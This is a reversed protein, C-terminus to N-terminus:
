NFTTATGSSGAPGSTGQPAGSGGPGVVITYTGSTLTTSGQIMGGAGGGGGMDNGGGGGGGVMLYEINGSGSVTLSGNGTFTHIRYGGSTITSNGGVISLALKGPNVWASGNYFEPIKLDSNYIMLGQELSLANRQATTYIPIKIRNAVNLIGVNLTSM